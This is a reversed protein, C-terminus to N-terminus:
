KFLYEEVCKQCYQANEERTSEWWEIVQSAYSSSNTHFIQNVFIKMQLTTIEIWNTNM